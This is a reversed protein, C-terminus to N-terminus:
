SVFLCILRVVYICHWGYSLKYYIDILEGKEREEKREEKRGGKM